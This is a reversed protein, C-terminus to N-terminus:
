KMTPNKVEMPPRGRGGPEWQNYGGRERMYERMYKAHSECRKTGEIAQNSCYMCKGAANQRIQWQRQRSPEKTGASM